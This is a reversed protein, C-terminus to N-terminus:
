GLTGDFIFVSRNTIPDDAGVVATASTDDGGDGHVRANQGVLVQKTSDVRLFYGLVPNLPSFGGSSMMSQKIVRTTTMRVPRINAFRVVSLPSIM